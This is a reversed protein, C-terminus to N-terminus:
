EAVSVIGSGTVGSGTGGSDDDVERPELIFEEGGDEARQGCNSVFLIGGLVRVGVLSVEDATVTNDIRGVFFAIRSDRGILRAAVWPDTGPFTRSLFATDSSFEVSGLVDTQGLFDAVLDVSSTSSSGSVLSFATTSEFSGSATVSFAFSTGRRRVASLSASINLNTFL